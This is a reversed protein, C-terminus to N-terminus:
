FGPFGGNPFFILWSLYLGLILVFIGGHIRNMTRKKNSILFLFLLIVSGINVWIDVASGSNVPIPNILASVGLVFFVNFINSGIINGVAIDVQKKSAAVVSTVLEPLSTGISVITVGIIREPIGFGRAVLVANDVILKGGLILGALGVVFLFLSKTVTYDKIEVAEEIEGKKILSWIYVLFIIFYSTLMLGDIRSIENFSRGEFFGDYSMFFVMLASLLALPIEKWTTSSKVALPYILAAIGLICLVNFINSGVINGLALDTSGTASAFLNVVLEPASTGFAVVTLGIVLTPVKLRRALAAAGDVMWDAGFILPFFGGLLLLIELM